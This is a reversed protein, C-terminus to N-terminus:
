LSCTYACDEEAILRLSGEGRQPYYDEVQLRSSPSEKGLWNELGKGPRDPGVPCATLERSRLAGDALGALQGVATHVGAFDALHRTAPDDEDQPACM